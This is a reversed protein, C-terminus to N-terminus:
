NVLPYGDFIHPYDGPVKNQGGLFLLIFHQSTSQNTTLICRPMQGNPCVNTFIGLKNCFAAPTSEYRDWLFQHGLWFAPGFVAPSHIKILQKLDWRWYPWLITIIHYYYRQQGMGPYWYTGIEVLGRMIALTWHKHQQIHGRRLM